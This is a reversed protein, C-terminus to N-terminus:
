APARHATAPAQRSSAPTRHNCDLYANVARDFSIPLQQAAGAGLNQLQAGFGDDQDLVAIQKQGDIERVQLLGPVKAVDVDDVMWCSIREWLADPPSMNKLEGDEFIVLNDALREVEDMQHSCYIITREQNQGAFLLSELFAQKAVVDLGLTPEDLILLEPSQALALGLNVGAREGRSLQSVKQDELINYHGIVEDYTEQRWLPYLSRHMDILARVTIWGPLTHEENVLGIKGRTEPTLNESDVGLVRTSGSSPSLIGLLIRFFTSKGAGNSGVVAHVGGRPLHLTMHRLAQKRGFFKCLADSEIAYESM